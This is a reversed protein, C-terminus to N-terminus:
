ALKDEQDEIQEDLWTLIPEGREDLHAKAARRYIRLYEGLMEPPLSYYYLLKEGWAVDTNLYNIDGLSLAAAV